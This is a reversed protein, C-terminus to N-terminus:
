RSTAVKCGPLFSKIKAATEATAPTNYLEVYGLRQSQSLYKLGVGNVATHSLHLTHLSKLGALHRLRADTVQTGRLDLERLHIGSLHELGEGTVLTYSLNLRDLNRMGALHELGADSVLTYSLDLDALRKLDKLHELGGGDIRTNHLTLTHLYYHQRLYNLGESTVGTDSLDLSYSVLTKPLKQLNADTISERKVPVMAYRVKDTFRFGADEWAAIKDKDLPYDSPPLMVLKPAEPDPPPYDPQRTLVAVAGSVAIFLLALLIQLRRRRTM